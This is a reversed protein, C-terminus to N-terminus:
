FNVYQLSSGLMQFMDNLCFSTCKLPNGALVSLGIHDFDQFWSGRAMPM